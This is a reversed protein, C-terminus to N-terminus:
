NTLRGKTDFTKIEKLSELLASNDPSLQVARYIAKLSLEFRNAKLYAYALNNWTESSQPNIKLARQYAQIAKKFSQRQYYVNGLGFLPLDEDPWRSHAASYGELASQYQGVQELQNIASIFSFMTASTPIQNPPLVLIGWHEARQWTREFVSFPVILRKHTGSRLIFEETKLDYGIVVAYHWRPYWNFSLNQMILVPNGSRVEHIIAKLHKSVPHIMMGFSRAAATMELQLSGQRKPLYVLPVLEEPKVQVSHYNLMMALSAPGCQYRAQPFFPTQELVSRSPTIQPSHQQLWQTQPPVTCGGLFCFLFLCVPVILWQTQAGFRVGM